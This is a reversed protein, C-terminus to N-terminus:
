ESLERRYSALDRLRTIKNREGYRELLEGFIQNDKEVHFDYRKIGLSKLVSDLTYILTWGIHTKQFEKDVAFYNVYGQTSKGVLAWICGVISLNEAAVICVGAFDSEEAPPEVNCKNLLQVINQFDSPIYSRIIV